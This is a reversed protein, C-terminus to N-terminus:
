KKQKLVLMKIEKEEEVLKLGYKCLEKQVANLDALDCNILLDVNSQGNVGSVIPTTIDYHRFQLENVLAELPQNQIMYGKAVYQALPKGGNTKIEKHSSDILVLCKITRKEISGEIDFFRNVENQMIGYISYTANDPIKLEYSVVNRKKWEDLKRLDTPEFLTATDKIEYIIRNNKKSRFNGKDYGYVSYNFALNFLTLIPVNIATIRNVKNSNSDKEMRVVTNREYKQLGRILVSYGDILNFLKDSNQELIPKSFNFGQLFEFNSISLEKGKLLAEINEKSTNYDSTLYKIKGDQGIWVQFPEGEHPFLQNLVTDNVICPLSPLNKKIHSLMESIQAKSNKTVLVIQIQSPFLKQLSDLKPFAHICALCRINWFDLIILKGKLEHFSIEKESIDVLKNMKLDPMIDGVSLHQAKVNLVSLAFLISHLFIKRM